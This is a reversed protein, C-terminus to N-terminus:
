FMLLYPVTSSCVVRIKLSFRARANSLRENRLRAPSTAMAPTDARAAPWRTGDNAAALVLGPPPGPQAGLVGLQEGGPGYQLMLPVLSGFPQWPALQKWCM